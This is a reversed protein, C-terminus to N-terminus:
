KRRRRAALGALALLSLTATTPEPVAPTDVAVLDSAEVVGEWVTIDSVHETIADAINFSAYSIGSFDYSANKWIVLNALTDENNSNKTLYSLSFSDNNGESKYQLVYTASFPHETDEISSSTGIPFGMENKFEWNTNTYDYNIEIVPKGCDALIVWSCIAPNTPSTEFYKDATIGSITYSIAFDDGNFVDLDLDSPNPNPDSITAANAMSALCLLCSLYLTKKM